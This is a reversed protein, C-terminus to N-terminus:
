GAVLEGEMLAKARPHGLEAARRFYDEARDRDHGALVGLAFLAGAHGRTGAYIFLSRALDPDAPGGRGNVLMEAAAVMAELVGEGAAWLYYRRALAEDAPTGIGCNVCIGVYYGAEPREERMMRQLWGHLMPLQNPPLSLSTILGGLDSWATFDGGEIATQLWSAIERPDPHGEAGVAIARALVHACGAHGLEAARRYWHAAEELNAPDREANAHFDGLVACANVDGDNGARRLWTEAAELDRAAGRGTLLAMGLRTKAETHGHEAAVRYHTVAMELDRGGGTEIEAMAGLLFHATPLGTDAAAYLLSRAQGMCDAGGDRMLTIAHGLQGLPWGAEASERYLVDAEDPSEAVEPAMRLILALLAKAEASGGRAARRALEAALRHDPRAPPPLGPPGFAGRQFPGSIGHLALTALETQAPVDGAAAARELWYRGEAQNAPVGHGRLYCLGLRGQAEPSGDRAAAAIHRAAEIGAGRELLQDALRLQAEASGTAARLRARIIAGPPM